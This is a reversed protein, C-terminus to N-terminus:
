GAANPERRLAAPIDLGDDAEPPAARTSEDLKSYDLPRQWMADWESSPPLLPLGVDDRHLWGWTPPGEHRRDLVLWCFDPRGGGTKECRDFVARPPV